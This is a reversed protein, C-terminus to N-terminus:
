KIDLRACLQCHSTPWDVVKNVKRTIQLVRVCVQEYVCLEGAELTQSKCKLKEARFTCEVVECLIRVHGLQTLDIKVWGRKKKKKKRSPKM